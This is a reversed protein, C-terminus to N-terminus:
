EKRADEESTGEDAFSKGTRKLENELANWIGNFEGEVLREPLDFRYVKDLADLVDRKLKMATMQAFEQALRQRVADKLKALDEFGIKKAFEDDFVAEKPSEVSKVTVDFAAAKGALAAVSYAEPFTVNITRENGATAGLLQDEFGPIFQGSGVELPVDEATG